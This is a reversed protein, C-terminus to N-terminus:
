CIHQLMYAILMHKVLIWHTLSSLAVYCKAMIPKPFPKNCTWYWVKKEPTSVSINWFEILLMPALAKIELRVLDDAAIINVTIGGCLPCYINFMSFTKHPCHWYKEPTCLCLPISIFWKYKLIFGRMCEIQCMPSSIDPNRWPFICKEMCLMHSM